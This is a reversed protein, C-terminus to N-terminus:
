NGAEKVKKTQSPATKEKTAVKEKGQAKKKGKSAQKKQEALAVKKKFKDIRGETDIFKQKGTYLPHCNSCIEVNIVDVTSQTIFNNGCACTVTVDQNMTPHIDKKM